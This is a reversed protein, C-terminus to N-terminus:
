TGEVNEVKKSMSDIWKRLMQSADKRGLSYWHLVQGDSGCDPCKTSPGFDHVREMRDALDVLKAAVDIM